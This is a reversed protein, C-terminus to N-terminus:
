DNDDGNNFECRVWKRSDEIQEKTLRGEEILEEIFDDIDIGIPKKNEQMDEPNTM